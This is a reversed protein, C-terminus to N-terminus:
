KGQIGWHVCHNKKGIHVTEYPVEAKGELENTIVDAINDKSFWKEPNLCIVQSEISTGQKIFSISSLKVFGIEALQTLFPEILFSAEPAFRYLDYATFMGDARENALLTIADCIRVIYPKFLATDEPTWRRSGSLHEEYLPLIGIEAKDLKRIADSLWLRERRDSIRRAVEKALDVIEEIKAEKRRGRLKAIQERVKDLHEKYREMAEKESPCERIENLIQEKTNAM